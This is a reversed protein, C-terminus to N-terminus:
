TATKGDKYALLVQMFKRLQEAGVALTEEKNEM